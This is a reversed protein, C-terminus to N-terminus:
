FSIFAKMVIYLDLCYYCKEDHAKAKAVPVLGVTQAHICNMTNM